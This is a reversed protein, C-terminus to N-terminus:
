APSVLHSRMAYNALWPSRLSLVCSLSEKETKEWPNSARFSCRLACLSMLSPPAAASPSAPLFQRNQGTHSFLYRSSHSDPALSVLYPTKFRRNPREGRNNATCDTTLARWTHPNEGNPLDSM